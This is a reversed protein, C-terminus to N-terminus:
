IYNNFHYYQRKGKIGRWRGGHAARGELPHSNSFFRRPIWDTSSPLRTSCARAWNPRGAPSVSSACSHSM